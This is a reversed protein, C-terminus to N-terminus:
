ENNDNPKLQKIHEVYVMIREHLDNPYTYGLHAGVESAIRRFLAMTKTLADWNDKTDAGVYTEELATWIDTPLRKKLGKGLSGVPVSWNHEVGVRWELVQRLYVHKMDYDLAWKLPLLEGRWLCKAVYPADTLFDNVHTQYHELTPPKLVYAKFTPAQVTATLNDKDLLIKYGADLEDLLVPAAVIKQFLDVSWLTFDIKLGDAYQTVNACCDIGFTPHPYIPDWYVVLVDGFDNLWTKDSVFPQIDRVILIVDYDSLIDVHANPVARTSTLLVARIEDKGNAWQIITNLVERAPHSNIM